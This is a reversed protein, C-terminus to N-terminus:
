AKLVPTPLDEDQNTIAVFPLVKNLENVSILIDLDKTNRDEIYALYAIGGVICYDVELEGLLTLFRIVATPLM